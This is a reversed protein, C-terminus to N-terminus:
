KLKLDSLNTIKLVHDELCPQPASAFNADLDVSIINELSKRECLREEVFVSTKFVLVSRNEKACWVKYAVYRVYLIVDHVLLLKKLEQLADM